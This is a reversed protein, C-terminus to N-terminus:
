LQMGSLSLGVFTLLFECFTLNSNLLLLSFQFSFLLVLFHWHEVKRKGRGDKTEVKLETTAFRNLRSDKIIHFNQCYYLGM